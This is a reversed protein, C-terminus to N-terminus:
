YFYYYFSKNRQHRNGHCHSERSFNFIQKKKTTLYILAFTIIKHSIPVNPVPFPHACSSPRYHATWIRDCFQSSTLSEWGILTHLPAQIRLFNQILSQVNFSRIQGDDDDQGDQGISISGDLCGANWTLLHFVLGHIM